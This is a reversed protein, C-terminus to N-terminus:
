KSPFVRVFFLRFNLTAFQVTVLMSKGIGAVYAKSRNFGFVAGLAWCCRFWIFLEGAFVSM